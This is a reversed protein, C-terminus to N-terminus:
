KSLGGVRWTLIQQLSQSAKVSLLYVKVKQELMIRGYDFLNAEEPGPYNPNLTHSKYPPFVRLRVVCIEAGDNVM